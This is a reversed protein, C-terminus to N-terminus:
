TGRLLISRAQADEHRNRYDKWALDVRDLWSISEPKDSDTRVLDRYHVTFPDDVKDFKEFVTNLNVGDTPIGYQFWVMWRIDDLDLPRGMDSYKNQADHILKLVEDRIPVRGIKPVYQGPM